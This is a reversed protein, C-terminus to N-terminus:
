AVKRKALWADITKIESKILEAAKAKLQWEINRQKQHLFTALHCGEIKHTAASNVAVLGVTIEVHPCDFGRLIAELMEKREMAENIQALTKKNIMAHPTAFM